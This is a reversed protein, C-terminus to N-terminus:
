KKQGPHAQVTRPRAGKRQDQLLTEDTPVPIKQFVHQRSIDKLRKKSQDLRRKYGEM